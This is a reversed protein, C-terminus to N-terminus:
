IYPPVLINKETKVPEQKKEQTQGAFTVTSMFVAAAVLLSVKKM